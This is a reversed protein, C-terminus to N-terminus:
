PLWQSSGSNAPSSSIPDESRETVKTVTVGFDRHTYPVTIHDSQSTEFTKTNDLEYVQPRSMVSQHGRDAFMDVSHVKSNGSMSSNVLASRYAKSGETTVNMLAARGNLTSMLCTAYLKALTIDWAFNIATHPLALFCVVDGIAFISTIMGTQVTSRIIKDIVNDTSVFGTKRKSLSRVLTGTILLDAATSTLWWLLAPWHLEPKLAFLKLIAVKVGTIFGGATSTLALGMVVM